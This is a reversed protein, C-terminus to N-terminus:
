VKKLTAIVFASTLICHSSFDTELIAFNIDAAFYVSTFTCELGINMTMPKVGCPEITHDNVTVLSSTSKELRRHEATAPLISVEIGVNRLLGTGYILNVVFLLPKCSPQHRVGGNTITRQTELGRVDNVAAPPKSVSAATTRTSWTSKGRKLPQLPALKGWPSVFPAAIIFRDLEDMLVHGKGITTFPFHGLLRQVFKPAFVLVDAVAFIELFRRLLDNFQLRVSSNEPLCSGHFFAAINSTLCEPIYRGVPVPEGNLEEIKKKLINFETMMKEETKCRAFGLDRLMTMCFRRNASWLEGNLTMLGNYFEQGRNLEEPRDLLEDVTSFAKLNELDNIIVAERTFLKLRFVPGYDKALLLAKKHLLPDLLELHGIVSSTPPMPPFKSGPPPMLQQNFARSLIWLLSAVVSAVLLVQWESAMVQLRLPTEVKPLISAGARNNLLYRLM